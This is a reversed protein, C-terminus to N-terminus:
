IKIELSFSVKDGASIGEKRRVESKIPLIYSESRKEPFISTQWNTQGVTVSVPLSGFGRSNAGFVSKIKKAQEKPLTAFHWAATESPYIWIEEKFSFRNKM